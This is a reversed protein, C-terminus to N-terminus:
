YTLNLRLLGLNEALGITGLFSKLTNHMFTWLSYFDMKNKLIINIMFV